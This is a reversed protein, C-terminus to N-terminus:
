KHKVSPIFKAARRAPFVGAILGILAAFVITLPIFYLPLYFIMKPENGMSRAIIYLVLNILWGAAYAGVVGIASGIAVLMLAETLYLRRVLKTDMGLRKFISIQKYNELLSVTMANAAIISMVILSIVGVVLLSIQTARIILNADSFADGYTMVQFGLEEIEKRVSAVAAQNLAGVRIITYYTDDARLSGLPVYAQAFNNEAVVGSIRVKKEIKKYLVEPVAVRYGGLADYDPVYVTLNVEQGAIDKFSKYGLANLVAQSIVMENATESSFSWKGSKLVPTESKFFDLTGAVLSIDTSKKGINAVAPFDISPSVSKVNKLQKLRESVSKSVPLQDPEPSSVDIMTLAGSTALKGLTLKSIGFGFSILLIVAGITIAIIGLILRLKIKNLRWGAWVIGFVDNFKM